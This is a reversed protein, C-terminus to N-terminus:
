RAIEEINLGFAKWVMTDLQDELEVRHAENIDTYIKKALHIIECSLKTDPNPLPFQEVYQTMFRRRGAYLKNNFRFDYFAEIFKSNAIAATLWLLDNERDNNVVLWYCDGNVITGELDVWFIPKESIDRFILKPLQWVEPDHPVWIEYWQRGSQMLYNRAELINRHSEFYAQSKPYKNLNVAQRKGQLNEHPYIVHRDKKSPLAKFRRAVHHTTLTRLLEPKDEEPFKCWDDRIFVKDACTKIGVKIKGIDGFVRWTHATVKALWDNAKVTSIRWVDDKIATDDLVGHQVYFSRGDKLAINGDMALASLPDEVEFDAQEKVEYISSFKPPLLSPANPGQAIIVSPLVAADFLKTDGLDWIHRLRFQTRLAARISAGSKTTMFRNSVILGMIGTSKLVKEMGIIFAHYLDVRGKLGFSLALEKAKEAGIIQTRVYPPNAIILDFFLESRQQSLLNNPSYNETVFELFDKVEIELKIDPFAALLRKEALSVAVADTDFGHVVISDHYQPPIKGLLNLLLEGDGIAPDLIHMDDSYSDVAEAIKSAVFNALLPPTYTAGDAKSSTVNQYRMSNEERILVSM